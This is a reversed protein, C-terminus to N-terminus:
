RRHRRRWEEPLEVSGRMMGRRQARARAEEAVYATSYRTFAVAWGNGVLWRQIDTEGVRCQALTRGYTDEGLPVCTVPSDGILARLQQTAAAGCRWPRGEDLCLQKSEPADIGFLRIKAKNVVLTDGDVVRARGTLSPGSHHEERTPIPQVSPSAAQPLLGTDRPADSRFFLLALAAVMPLAAVLAWAATKSSKAPARPQVVRMRSPVPM